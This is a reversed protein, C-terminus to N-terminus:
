GPRLSADGDGEGDVCVASPDVIGGDRKVEPVFRVLPVHVVVHFKRFVKGDAVTVSPRARSGEGAHFRVPLGPVLAHRCQEAHNRAV